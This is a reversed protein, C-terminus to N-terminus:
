KAEADTLDKLSEAYIKLKDVAANWEEATSKDYKAIIEIQEITEIVSMEDGYNDIRSINNKDKIKWFIQAKFKTSKFYAPFEIEGRIEKCKVEIERYSDSEFLLTDGVSLFERERHKIEGENTKVVIYISPEKPETEEANQQKCFTCNEEDHYQSGHETGADAVTNGTGNM